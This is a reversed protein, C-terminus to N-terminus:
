SLSLLIVHEPHEAILDFLGMPTMRANRYAHLTGEEELRELEELVTFTKSTGPRGVLYCATHYGLAVGVVRDRIRQIRHELSDLANPTNLIYTTM